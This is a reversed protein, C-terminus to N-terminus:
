DPALAVLERAVVLRMDEGAQRAGRHLTTPPEDAGLGEQAADSRWKPNAASKSSGATFLPPWARRTSTGLRVLHSTSACVSVSSSLSTPTAYCSGLHRRERAGLGLEVRQEVIALNRHRREGRPLGLADQTSARESFDHPANPVPTPRNRSSFRNNWPASRELSARDSPKGARVLQQRKASVCNLRSASTITPSHM